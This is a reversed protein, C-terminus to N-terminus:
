PRTPRHWDSTCTNPTDAPRRAPGPASARAPRGTGATDHGFLRAGPASLRALLAGRNYSIADPATDAILVFRLVALVHSTPEM